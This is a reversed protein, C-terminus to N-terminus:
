STCTAATHQQRTSAHQVELTYVLDVRPLATECQLAQTDTKNLFNVVLQKPWASGAGFVSAPMRNPEVGIGPVGAMRHLWSVYLGLGCGFELASHPRLLLLGNALGFDFNLGYQWLSALLSLSPAIAHTSKIGRLTDRQAPSHLLGM